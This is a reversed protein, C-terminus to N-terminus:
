NHTEHNHHGQNILSTRLENIADARQKLSEIYENYRTDNPEIYYGKGSAVLRKVLGRTRIHRIMKRLRSGDVKIDHIKDLLRILQDSRIARDEGIAYSLRISILTITQIELGTLPKTQETFGNIM